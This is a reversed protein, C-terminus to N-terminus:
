QGRLESQPGDDSLQLEKVVAQKNWLLFCIRIQVLSDTFM